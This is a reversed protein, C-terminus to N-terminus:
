GLVENLALLARAYIRMMTKVRAISVTEDVGHPRGHGPEFDEPPLCASAGFVYANPLCHAYTGGSLTFPAKNEGTIGNAIECLLRITKNEPDILYPGIGGTAAAISFGRKGAAEAIRSLIEEYTIGLPYRIGIVLAPRGDVLDISKAFVTLDGLIEHHTRVGLCEGHIDLSVDRFFELIGREADTVLDADLLGRSLMTIMNGNPDPHAGHVPPSFAKVTTGSETVTLELDPLTKPLDTRAFTAYAFGPADNQGAILSCSELPKDSVLTLLCGGKGGYGVPFVSDPVLSMRPPKAVNLFGKAEPDGERGRLDKMGSEENSAVYIAPNYSLGIGLEGFIKFVHYIGALEGKNDSSGRGVVCGKYEVANYPDFRWGTGAPVVDGHLWIGLDPARDERALSVVGCGYDKTHLGIAEGMRIVEDQVARPGEGFPAGPLPDGEESRINVLRIIDAVLARESAEIAEDIKKLLETNM